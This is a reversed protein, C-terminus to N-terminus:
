LKAADADLGAVEEDTLSWGLAGINEEAQRANKAGPIPLAGKAITWNLAVQGVTKGGHGEGIEQMLRILPQLRLMDSKRNRLGLFSRPPRDPTYKGTLLGTALPGYAVLTVDLQRCLDLLGNTEPDRKLLSFSVQNTALPIGHEALFDHARQMQTPNFNSVGVAKTLGADVADALGAMLTEISTLTYPWHVMYLHVQELGLRQLSRHLANVISKRGFRWPFPAYKTMIVASSGRDQMFSGLLRESKGFAYIEATDFLTVGADLAVDFAARRDHDEDEDGYGWFRTGIGMPRIQPGDPGLQLTPTEEQNTM